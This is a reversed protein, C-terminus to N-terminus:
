SGAQPFMEHTTFHGQGTRELLLIESLCNSSPPAIGGRPWNWAVLTENGGIGREDLSYSAPRMFRSHLHLEEVPGYDDKAGRFFATKRLLLRCFAALGRGRKRYFRSVLLQCNIRRPYSRAEVQTNGESTTRPFFLSSPAFGDRDRRQIRPRVGCNVVAFSERSPAALLNIRSGSSRGLQRHIDVFSERLFANRCVARHRNRSQTPDTGM